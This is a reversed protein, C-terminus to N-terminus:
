LCSFMLDCDPFNVTCFRWEIVLGLPFLCNYMLIFPIMNCKILMEMFILQMCMEYHPLVPMSLTDGECEMCHSFVSLHCHIIRVATYLPLSTMCGLKTDDGTPLINSVCLLQKGALWGIIFMVADSHGCGTFGGQRWLHLCLLAVTIYM